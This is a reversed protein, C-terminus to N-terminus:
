RGIWAQRREQLIRSQYPMFDAESFLHTSLLRAFHADDGMIRQGHVLIQGLLPEGTSAFDVLDIPRGTAIALDEMLQMKQKTDLAQDTAIALDLDSGQKANEKTLSGFLIALCVHPHGELIQRIRSIELNSALGDQKM